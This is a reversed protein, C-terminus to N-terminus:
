DNREQSDHEGPVASTGGDVSNAANITVQAAVTLTDLARKKGGGITAVVQSRGSSGGLLAQVIADSVNTNGLALSVPVRLNSISVDLSFSTPTFRQAAKCDGDFFEKASSSAGCPRRRM